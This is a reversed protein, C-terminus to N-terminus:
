KFLDKIATEEAKSVIKEGDNSKSNIIKMVTNKGIAMLANGVVEKM